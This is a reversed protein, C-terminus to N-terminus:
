RTLSNILEEDVGSEILIQEEPTRAALALCAFWLAPGASARDVGLRAHVRCFIEDACAVGPESHRRSVLQRNSWGLGDRRRWPALSNHPRSMVGLSVTTACEFAFSLCIGFM